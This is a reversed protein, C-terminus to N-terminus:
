TIMKKIIKEIIIEPKEINDIVFDCTESIAKEWKINFDRAGNEWNNLKSLLWNHDSSSNCILERRTRRAMSVDLPVNLYIAFDIISNMTKNSCGFPYDFIIIETSEEKIEKIYRFLKSVDYEEPMSAPYNKPFVVKDDCDDFSIFKAHPIHNALRNGIETKGSGSNGSITILKSM